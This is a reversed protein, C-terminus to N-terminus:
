FIVLREELTLYRMRWFNLFGQINSINYFKNESNIKWNYSFYLTKIAENRLDICEIGCVAVQVGKLEGTGDTKCKAANPKLESFDSFIKFKESLNVISDEEKLFFTKDLAHAPCLYYYEFSEIVKIIFDNKILIFFIMWFYISCMPRSLTGRAHLENYLSIGPQSEMM